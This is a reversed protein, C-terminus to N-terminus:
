NGRIKREHYIEKKNNKYKLPLAFGELKVCKFFRVKLSVESGSREVETTAEMVGHVESGSREVETTAEMIGHVESGSREVETTAKAVHLFIFIYSDTLM